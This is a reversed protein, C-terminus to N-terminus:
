IFNIYWLWTLQMDSTKTLDGFTAMSYLDNTSMQLAMESLVVGIAEDYAVVTTFIAQTLQTPDVVSLVPKVLRTIGFLGNRDANVYKIVGGSTGGDGFIMNTIYFQFGQGFKNALASAFARKGMTLVTNPFKIVEKPRGSRYEITGEVRGKM